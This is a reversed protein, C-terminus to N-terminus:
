RMQRWRNPAMGKLQRFVRTLHSQDAFGCAAAIEALTRSSQAMLACAADVRQAQLWQTPSHGTSARFARAFHSRSLGCAEAIESMSLGGDLRSALMEKALREQRRGLGGIAPADALGDGHREILHTQIVTAMQGLFLPSAEQPRALAPLLARGLAALVPDDAATSTRLGAVRRGCHGASSRDFLTPPLELLVFDFPSHLDARYDDAFSRIYVSGPGFHHTEGQRGHLLRRAHGGTLAIGVLHGRGSAATVVQGMHRDASRRRYIQLGEAHLDQSAHLKAATCGLADASLAPLPSTAASM